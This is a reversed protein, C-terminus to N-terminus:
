AEARWTTDVVDTFAEEVAPFASDEAFKVAKSVVTATAGQIQEDERETLWQREEMYARLTNIPDRNTRWDEVEESSRYEELDGPSHGFYRYTRAEILSPGDGRRARDIAEGAAEYVAVVDQGDVSVGPIGYSTAMTAVSDVVAVSERRVWQQLGNNECVYVVPLKWLAGMTIAEHFPGRAVAGDGFFCVSVQDSKRIKSALATGTGPGLGGAVIGNAGLINLSLDAVHMSGGKGSCTGDVKGFLEAMAHDMDVGKALCHGHSRHTGVIYDDNRLNSCVGVAVAEEGCYLHLAGVVNGLGLQRNAEEEFMRIRWMDAYMKKALEETLAM